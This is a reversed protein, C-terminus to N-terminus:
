QTVVETKPEEIKNANEVNTNATEVPKVETVKDVPKEEGKVDEKKEEVKVEQVPEVIQYKAIALNMLKQYDEDKLVKYSNYLTVKNIIEEVSKYFKHNILNEIVSYLSYM